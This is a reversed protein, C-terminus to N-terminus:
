GSHMAEVLISRSEYNTLGLLLLFLSSEEFILAKSAFSGHMGLYISILFIASNVSLVFINLCFIVKGVCLYRM